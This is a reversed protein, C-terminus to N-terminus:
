GKYFDRSKVPEMVKLGAPILGEDLHDMLSRQLAAAREPLIVSSPIECLVSPNSVRLDNLVDRVPSAARKPSSGASQSPRSLKTRESLETIGIDSASQGPFIDDDDRLRRQRKSPSQPRPDPM